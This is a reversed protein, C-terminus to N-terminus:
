CKARIKQKQRWPLITEPNHLQLNRLKTQEKATEALILFIRWLIDSSLCITTTTVRYLQMCSTSPEFTMLQPVSTKESKGRKRRCIGEYNTLSYWNEDESHSTTTWQINEQKTVRPRSTYSFYGSTQSATHSIPYLWVRQVRLSGEWIHSPTM